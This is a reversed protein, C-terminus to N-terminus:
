DSAGSGGAPQIQLEYPDDFSLEDSHAADGYDMGSPLLLNKGMQLAQLVADVIALAGLVACCVGHRATAM